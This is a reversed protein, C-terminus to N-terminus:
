SVAAAVLYWRVRRRVADVIILAVVIVLFITADGRPGQPGM